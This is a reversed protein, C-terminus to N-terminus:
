KVGQLHREWFDTYVDLCEPVYRFIAYISFFVSGSSPVLPDPFTGTYAITQQYNNTGVSNEYLTKCDGAASEVWGVIVYDTGLVPTVLTDFRLLKWGIFDIGVLGERTSDVFSLDSKKYIAYKIKKAATTNTLYMSIAKLPLAQTCTYISGAIKGDLTFEVTGNTMTGMTDDVLECDISGDVEIPPYKIHRSQQLSKLVNGYLTMTM